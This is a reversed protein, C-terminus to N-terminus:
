LVIPDRNSSVRIKFINILSSDETQGIGNVRGRSDPSIRSNSLQALKRHGMKDMIEKVVIIRKTRENSPMTIKELLTSTERTSNNFINSSSNICPKSPHLLKRERILLCRPVSIFRTDLKV